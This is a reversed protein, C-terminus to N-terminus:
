WQACRVPMELRAFLWRMSGEGAGGEPRLQVEALLWTPHSEEEVLSWISNWAGRALGLAQSRGRRVASMGFDATGDGITPTLAGFFPIKGQGLQARIRCAV